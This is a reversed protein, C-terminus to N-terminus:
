DQREVELAEAEVSVLRAAKIFDDMTMEYTLAEKKVVKFDMVVRGFKKRGLNEIATVRPQRQFEYIVPEEEIYNGKQRDFTTFVITMSHTVKTIKSKNNM